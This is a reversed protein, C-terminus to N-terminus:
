GEWIVDAIGARQNVLRASVFLLDSLRNLFKITLPNLAEAHVAEVVEREARRCTTRAVHLGAAALHGGPLIFHELPPLQSDMEDIIQELSAVNDDDIRPVSAKSRLPTALDAGLVFLDRQLSILWERIDDFATGPPVCAIAVGLAANVEDVAGYAHIRPHNKEVRGGGFIGTSGDDGTRTYIKM